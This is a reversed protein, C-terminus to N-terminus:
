PVDVNKIVVRRPGVAVNPISFDGNADTTDTGQRIKVTKGAEPVDNVEVHGSVTGVAALNLKITIQYIGNAVPSFEYDGNADTKTTATAGTATNRLKVTKGVQPVGGVFVNGDITSGVDATVQFCAIWTGWNNTVASTAYENAACFRDTFSPDVTIGSYDGARFPSGDFANYNAEGAKALAAPQMTGPADALKRGTVYMSMFESSSSQMFTMGLDGNAAIAISPYYTHIGLAPSITGQQTLTPSVGSTDFEYWRAHSVGDTPFGVAQSAVLRDDRWEAHLLRADNTEILGGGPQTANPPFAYTAVALNTDTFIPTNSLINTMKVVRITTGNGYGAEEVFWMPDGSVSGHMTAAAMTFHTNNRNVDFKTFTGNNADLVTSKDITIVSVHDFASGVFGFMNLTFVHADANWGIKPYDGWVNEGVNPGFEKVDIRHMESFGALPDSTDSVAYLLHATQGVFDVDLAAVIFRNALEDYAVVPDFLFSGPGVPVFFTTLPQQSLNTGTSKDFIAVTSNVVEVIHAPGTAAHTDPPVFGGSDTFDLGAFSNIISALGPEPLETIQRGLALARAEAARKGQEFGPAHGLPAVKKGKPEASYLSGPGLLMIWGILAIELAVVGWRKTKSM